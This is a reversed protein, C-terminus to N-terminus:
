GSPPIVYDNPFLISHAYWRENGQACGSASVSLSLDDRENTGSGAINSDGPLTYLKVGTSGDRATSTLSARAAKAQEYFGCDTPSNAFTCSFTAQAAAPHALSLGLIFLIAGVALTALHRLVARDRQSPAVATRTTFRHM